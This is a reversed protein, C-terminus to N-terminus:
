VHARGIEKAAPGVSGMPELARIFCAQTEPTWGDARRRQRPAPIFALCSGELLPAPPPPSPHDMSSNPAHNSLTPFPNKPPPPEIFSHGIAQPAAGPTVRPRAAERSVFRSGPDLGPHRPLHHPKAPNPAGGHKCLLNTRSAHHRCHKLQYCQTTRVFALM